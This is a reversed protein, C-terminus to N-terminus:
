CYNSVYGSKLSLTSININGTWFVSENKFGINLFFRVNVTEIGYFFRDIFLHILRRPTDFLTIDIYGPCINYVQVNRSWQVTSVGVRSISMGLAM